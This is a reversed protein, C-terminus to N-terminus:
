FRGEVWARILHHAIALPEPVTLEPNERDLARRVEDRTFWGASALEVDDIRIEANLAQAHCGIMLSAPFPWPQSSHYRVEGIEIRAEEYVERAVAEELSEGPEMFGALCSRRTSPGGARGGLLCRGHHEVLMIVVPDVRPFYRTECATCERRSGGERSETPAACRPCFRNKAHWDLMSRAQALMGSQEAPLLSGTRRSEVFSAGDRALAGDLASADLAFHPVGDLMGLLVTEGDLAGAPLAERDLWALRPSDGETALANLEAFPLYRGRPDDFRAAVWAEDRRENSSRDLPNGAFVHPDSM